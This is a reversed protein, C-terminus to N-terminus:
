LGGDDDLDLVALEIGNVAIRVYVEDEDVAVKILDWGLGDKM